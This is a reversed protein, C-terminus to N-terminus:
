STKDKDRYKDEYIHNDKCSHPEQVFDSLVETHCAPSVEDVSVRCQGLVHICSHKNCFLLLFLAKCFCM